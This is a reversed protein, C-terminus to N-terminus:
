EKGLKPIEKPRDGKKRQEVLNYIKDFSKTVEKM